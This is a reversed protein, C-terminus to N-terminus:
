CELRRVIKRCTVCTEQTLYAVDLLFAHSEMAVRPSGFAARRRPREAQRLGGGCVPQQDRSEQVFAAAECHRGNNPQGGSAIALVGKDDVNAALFLVAAQRCEHVRTVVDLVRFYGKIESVLGGFSLFM